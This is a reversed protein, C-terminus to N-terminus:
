VAGAAKLAILDPRRLGLEECYVSINDEGLRPAKATRWPSRSAIFPAGPATLMRGFEPYEVSVFYGREHLHESTALDLPTAVEALILGRAQADRELDKKMQGAFYGSLATDLAAVQAAPPAGDGYLPRGQWEAVSFGLDIDLDDLWRQLLVHHESRRMFGVYGDAARYVLRTGADSFARGGGARHTVIGSAPWHLRNNALTGVVCEQMSVDVHTGRGTQRREALAILTGVAAQIGAQAYAQEATVRVPPRDRDGCLFLLGGAAMGVLDTAPDHARPGEQGFPSISLLVLCPNIAALTPYGLGLQAMEGVPLSEVVVDARRALQVFLARGDATGLNLTIGRKGANMQLWYLSREPLPVGDLFPGRRRTPHGGPPEIRLVDAGMGALLRTSLAGLETTLDLVRYPALARVPQEPPQV